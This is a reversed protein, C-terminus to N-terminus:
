KVTGTAAAETTTEVTVTEGTSTGANDSSEVPQPRVASMRAEIRAAVPELPRLFPKPYVGILVIFAVLPVMSLAERLDLDMLKRNEDKNLPGFLVGRLMRLLYLAAIIIGGVAGAGLWPSVQFAGLLILFEGVFGNLGPLGASSLAVVLLIAAYVPMVKALGGFDGLDRTHRRQYIFGVLLFLAGTSLGHNVMQLISGSLAGARFTFIGLVVFGLHAVSSYAVLSKIDRQVWAMLGGYLIGIIALTAMWPVAITAAVPFLPLSFRLLGYTGMKLLVGALIVSGLTPAEVHAVPLWTHLPWLPVKIAFALTFALFLWTQAGLPISIQELAALDFTYSGTLRGHLFYLALIAVLMLFSGVLTFLIFKVAAYIRRPGGWIGILLYMPILMAEWFVYFLFLDRAVFVGLMGAELMLVTAAFGKVRETVGAWTGLLAVPCLLATLATLLLSMGDLGVNYSVGIAPIWAVNEVLQFQATDPDFRAWIVAVMALVILGFLLAIAKLLNHRDRPVLAIVVTGLLPVFLILSIWHSWIFGLLLQIATLNEPGM